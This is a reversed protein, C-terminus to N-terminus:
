RTSTHPGNIPYAAHTRPVNDTAEFRVLGVAQAALFAAGLGVELRRKHTVRELRAPPVFILLKEPSLERGCPEAAYGEVLLTEADAASIEYAERAETLVRRLKFWVGAAYGRQRYQWRRVQARARVARARAELRAAATHDAM